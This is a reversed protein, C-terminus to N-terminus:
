SVANIKKCNTKRILTGPHIESSELIAEYCSQQTYQCVTSRCKCTVNDKRFQMWYRQGTSGM